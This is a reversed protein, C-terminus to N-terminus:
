EERLSKFYLRQGAEIDEDLRIVYYKTVGKIYLGENGNLEFIEENTDSVSIIRKVKREHKGIIITDNEKIEVNSQINVLCHKSFIRIHYNPFTRKYDLNHINTKNNEM